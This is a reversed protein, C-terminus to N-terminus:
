SGGDGSLPPMLVRFQLQRQIAEEDASTASSEISVLPRDDRHRRSSAAALVTTSPPPPQTAHTTPPLPANVAAIVMAATHIVSIV